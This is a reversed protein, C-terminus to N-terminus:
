SGVEIDSIIQAQLKQDSSQARRRELGSGLSTQPTCLGKVWDRAERQAMGRGMVGVAGHWGMEAELGATALRAASAACGRPAHLPPPPIVISSVTPPHRVWAGYRFPAIGRTRWPVAALALLVSTPLSPYLHMKCATQRAHLPM